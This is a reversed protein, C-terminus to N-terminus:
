NDRCWLICRAKLFQQAVSMLKTHMKGICYLWARSPSACANIMPSSNMPSSVTAITSSIVNECSMSQLLTQLSSYLICFGAFASGYEAVIYIIRFAETNYFEVVFSFGVGDFLLRLM